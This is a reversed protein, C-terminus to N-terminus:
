SEFFFLCAILLFNFDELNVVMNIIWNGRIKKLALHNIELTESKCINIQDM